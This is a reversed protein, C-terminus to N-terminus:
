EPSLEKLAATIARETKEADALDSKLRTMETEFMRTTEEIKTKLSAISECVQIRNKDLQEAYQMSLPTADTPQAMITEKIEEDFPRARMEDTLEFMRVPLFSPIPEATLGLADKAKDILNTM